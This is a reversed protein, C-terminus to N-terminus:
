IRIGTGKGIRLGRTQGSFSQRFIRCAVKYKTTMRTILTPDNSSSYGTFPSRFCHINNGFKM